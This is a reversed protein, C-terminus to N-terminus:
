SLRQGIGRGYAKEALRRLKLPMLSDNYEEQIDHKEVAHGLYTGGSPDTALKECERREDANWWDPLMDKARTECRTLFERFLPVPDKKDYLGTPDCEFKYLDEVRMRYADILRRYVERKPINRLVSGSLGDLIAQSDTPASNDAANASALRACDKKHRKWDAKQCDRSCYTTEHCKACKKLPQSSSGTKQCTACSSTPIETSSTGRPHSDANPRSVDTVRGTRTDIVSVYPPANQSADEM